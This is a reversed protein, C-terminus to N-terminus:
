LWACMRMRIALTNRNSKLFYTFLNGLRRNEYMSTTPTPEMNLKASSPHAKFADTTSISSTKPTQHNWVGASLDGPGWLSAKNVSCDYQLSKYDMILDTTNTRNGSFEHDTKSVSPVSKAVYGVDSAAYNCGSRGSSERYKLIKYKSSIKGM